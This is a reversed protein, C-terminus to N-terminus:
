IQPAGPLLLACLAGQFSPFRSDLLCYSVGNRADGNQDFINHGSQEGSFTM